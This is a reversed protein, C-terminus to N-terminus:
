VSAPLDKPVLLGKSELLGRLGDSSAQERLDLAQNWFVPDQLLDEGFNVGFHKGLWRATNPAVIFIGGEDEFENRRKNDVWAELRNAATSTENTGRQYTYPM